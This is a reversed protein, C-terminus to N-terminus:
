DIVELKIVGSEVVLVVLQSKSICLPAFGSAEEFSYKKKYSDDTDTHQPVRLRPATASCLILAVTSALQVQNLESSFTLHPKVTVSGRLKTRLFLDFM